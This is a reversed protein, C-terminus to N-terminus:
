GEEMLKKWAAVDDEEALRKLFNRFIDCGRARYDSHLEGEQTLGVYALPLPRLCKHRAHRPCSRDGREGFPCVNHQNRVESPANMLNIGLIETHTYGREEYEEALGQLEEPPWDDYCWLPKILWLPKQNKM